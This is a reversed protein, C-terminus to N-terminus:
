YLGFGNQGYINEDLRNIIFAKGPTYNSTSMIKYTTRGSAFILFHIYAFQKIKNRFITNKHPITLYKINPVIIAMLVILLIIAGSILSVRNKSLRIM